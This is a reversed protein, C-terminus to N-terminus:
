LLHAYRILFIVEQAIVKIIGATPIAFLM